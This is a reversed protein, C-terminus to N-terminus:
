GLVKEMRARWEAHCELLFRLDETAASGSHLFLGAMGALSSAEDCRRLLVLIDSGLRGGPQLLGAMKAGREEQEELIEFLAGPIAGAEARWAAYAMPTLWDEDRAAAFRRLAQRGQAGKHEAEALAQRLPEVLSSGALRYRPGPGGFRPFISQVSQRPTFDDFLKALAPSLKMLPRAEALSLTPEAAGCWLRPFGALWHRLAPAHSKEGFAIALRLAPGDETRLRLMSEELVRALASDVHTYVPLGWLQTAALEQSMAGIMGRPTAFGIVGTSPPFERRPDAFGLRARLYRWAVEQQDHWAGAEPTPTFALRWAGTKVALVYAAATAAPTMPVGVLEPLSLDRLRPQLRTEHMTGLDLAARALHELALRPPLAALRDAPLLRRSSRAALFAAAESKPEFDDETGALLAGAEETWDREVDAPLEGSLLRHYLWEARDSDSRSVRDGFWAIAARNVDRFLKGKEEQQNRRYDRMLPMMRARLDPRHRLGEGDPQVMWVENRLRDFADGARDPHVDCPKALVQVAIERTVRRLVLGPWALKQVDPDRVHEIVRKQYMIAVLDAGPQDGRRRIDDAIRHRESEDKGARLLEVAVRIALPERRRPPSHRSGAIVTAWKSRWGEKLLDKGLLDAMSAAEALPLPALAHLQREERGPTERALAAVDARGVAIVRLEPFGANATLADIFHIVGDLAQPDSQVVEMTDLVLLFARRGNTVHRRLGDRFEIFPDPANPVEGGALEARLRRRLAGFPEALQPFQLALQRAAEVLLLRPERPQLAARDFDLYVFPFQREALAHDLVFKAVLTTKGLGGQAEIVLVRARAGAVADSILSATRRIGRSVSELLGKSDLEDVFGRVLRLEAERGVFRDRPLTGDWGGSAGILIRLPQLLEALDLLRRAEDYRPVGAALEVGRLRELAAVAARLEEVPATALDGFRGVLFCRLWANVRWADDHSVADFDATDAAYSIALMSTFADTGRAARLVDARAEDSLRLRRAGGM